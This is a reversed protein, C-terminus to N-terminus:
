PHRTRLGRAGGATGVRREGHQDPGPSVPGPLAERAPAALRNWRFKRPHAQEKFEHFMPLLSEGPRLPHDRIMTLFDPDLSEDELASLVDRALPQFHRLREARDHLWESGQGTFEALSLLEDGMECPDWPVVESCLGVVVSLWREPDRALLDGHELRFLCRLGERDSAEIMCRAQTVLVQVEQEAWPAAAPDDGDEGFDGYQDHYHISEDDEDTEFSRDLDDSDGLDDPDLESYEVEIRSSLEEWDIAGDKLQEYAARLKQFREPDTEPRYVRLLRRYAKRM